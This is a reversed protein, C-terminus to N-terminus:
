VSLFRRLVALGFKQSKEPHFQTAFVNEHEIAAVFEQGGYETVGAVISRDVPDLAFSHVFYFCAGAGEPLDGLLQGPKTQRVENWGVHPIRLSPPGELRRVVGKFWGLGSHEGHELGREALLQMGLCIGLFPRKRGMALETLPAVWGAARLKAMADGFAGVGPLVVRAADRVGDPNSCVTVNAGLAELANQVSRLNGMGYDILAVTPKPAPASPSSSMAVPVVM